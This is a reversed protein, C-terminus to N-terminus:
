VKYREVIVNITEAFESLEKASSNLQTSAASLERSSEQVSHIDKSIQNSVTTVEGVNRSVEGVGDATQSVNNAIENTTASQEEVASAILATIQDIEAIVKQIDDFDQISSDTSIQINEISQAIQGTANATQRSLEKIENAVVAFGKGAEGASAAEITANLALLNTQDSIGKITDTISDILKAATGLEKMKESSHHIKHVAKQTVNRANETNHAIENITATMEESATAVTRINASMQEVAAAVTQMNHSTQESASAVSSAVETGHEANASLQTSIASLETTSSALSQVGEKIESFGARLEVGVKSLSRIMRGIEDELECDMEHTFDGAALQETFHVAKQTWSVISRVILFAATVGLVFAIGAAVLVLKLIFAGREQLAPGLTNQEEIYELKVSESLDAIVPGITDMEQIQENRFAIGARLDEFNASYDQSLQLLTQIRADIESDSIRDMVTNLLDAMNELESTARDADDQLNSDLYQMVNVQGRLLSRLAALSQTREVEAGSASLTDAVATIELEMQTGIARMRELHQNIQVIQEVVRDFGQGYTSILSKAEHMKALSAADTTTDIAEDIFSSTAEFRQHFTDSFSQQPSLVYNKVQMRADLLNAQIRGMLNSRMATHRYRSLGDSLQNIGIWGLISVVLLLFLTIAFGGGIKTALNLKLKNRM